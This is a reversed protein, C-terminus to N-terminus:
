NLYVFSGPRVTVQFRLKRDTNRKYREQAVSSTRRAKDVMVRVRDRLRRAQEKVNPVDDTDDTLRRKPKLLDAPVDTYAALPAKPARALTLEFPAFGTTRHVQTNYAYTLPQVFQDWDNQHESVYHILRTVLTRNYREAQGNTQPHYATTRLHSVGLMTVLHDFIKAVFQPGNDTLIYTPIGYPCIWHEMFANAVAGATTSSMPIARAIKSFRDTIVLISSFGKKTKVFPGVLDMAVFALPDVAPFLTLEHQKHGRTGRVRACSRCDKAAQFIDNVMSRWYYERRITEYMRTGGPHGAHVPYHAHYLIIPILSFPVVKQLSGDLPSRRVLIDEHTVGFPSDPLDLSSRVHQCFKDNQQAERLSTITIEGPPESKDNLALVDPLGAIEGFDHESAPCGDLYDNEEVFEQPDPQTESRETHSAEVALTPIADDLPTQDSGDTPMRSLADAAQHKIGARHVVDYEFDALRLRWRQLRGSADSLNMIWRLSDHDTRLTFRQGELYPRLTLAAWVIALCEKETTSYNKEAKSLSRSWYGVPRNTGDDQEQLLVCGVQYDCADTDLVYPKGATPLALVPPSIMSDRLREYAETEEKNLPGFNFPRDKQLKATLPAAVRAFSAVFRRYVNCLGLFSRLETVNTPPIAKKIAEQCKKAVELKGPSIKHGLYDCSEQFFHCKEIRLSVGASMLLDLVVRLHDYHESVNKSYVIVDDLYVLATQWRVKALIVDAARQFTGPANKLGFPMRKFRYLGFHSTFATKDRDNPDVEIQWYGSNADLTSFVRADGLSDICEDMRPIPYSDRVTMANLRRYDVCFRLTGDAKPVFVIPSAWECEAEEIVDLALMKDIEAKERKRGDPSARYPPQYVPSSGEKLEIRHKVHRITGLHGDWMTRYRQLFDLIKSRDSLSNDGISVQDKWADPNDPNSEGIHVDPDDKDVGSAMDGRTKTTKPTLAGEKIPTTGVDMSLIEPVNPIPMIPTVLPFAQAAVADKNLLAPREELNAVYVYFPRGPDVDAVGNAVRLAKHKCLKGGPEISVLGPASTRVLVRAQTFAPITRPKVVYVKRGAIFPNQLMQRVFTPDPQARPEGVTSAPPWPAPANAPDDYAPCQCRDCGPHETPATDPPASAGDHATVLQVVPKAASGAALIPVPRSHLPVIRRDMPLIARVYQDQFATGLICPAVLNDVVGFWVRVCLDGLRVHLNVIGEVPIPQNAAASLNAVPSPRIRDLWSPPLIRKDVLNPGAGTDMVSITPVMEYSRIGLSMSVKYNKSKFLNITENDEAEFAVTSSYPRPCGTSPCCRVPPNVMRDDKQVSPPLPDWDEEDFVPFVGLSHVSVPSGPLTRGSATQTTVHVGVRPKVTREPVPASSIVPSPAEEPQFDM